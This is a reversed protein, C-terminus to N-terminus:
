GTGLKTPWRGLVRSSVSLALTATRSGPRAIPSSRIDFHHSDHHLGTLSSAALTRRSRLHLQLQSSDLNSGTIPAHRLLVLTLSGSFCVALSDFFLVALFTFAHNPSRQETRSRHHNIFRLVCFPVVEVAGHFIPVQEPRNGPFNGTEATTRRPPPPFPIHRQVM